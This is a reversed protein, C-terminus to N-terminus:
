SCDHLKINRLEEPMYMRAVGPPQPPLPQRKKESTLLRPVEIKKSIELIEILNDFGRKIENIDDRTAPMRSKKTAILENLVMRAGAELSSPVGHNPSWSINVRDNIASAQLHIEGLDVPWGKSLFYKCLATGIDKTSLLLLDLELEISHIKEITRNYLSKLFKDEERRSFTIGEPLELIYGNHAYENKIIILEETLQYNKNENLFLSTFSAIHQIIADDNKPFVDIRDSYIHIEGKPSTSADYYDTFKKLLTTTLLEELESPKVTRIKKALIDVEDHLLKLHPDNLIEPTPSPISFRLKKGGKNTCTKCRGKRGSRLRNDIPFEEILKEKGCQICEKQAM